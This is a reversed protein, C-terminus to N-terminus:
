LPPVWFPNRKGGKVKTSHSMPLSLWSRTFDGGLYGLVSPESYFIRYDIVDGFQIGFLSISCGCHVYKEQFSSSTLLVRGFFRKKLRWGSLGRCSGDTSQFSVWRPLMAKIRWSVIHSFVITQKMKQSDPSDACQSFEMLCSVIHCIWICKWAEPKQASGAAPAFLRLCYDM